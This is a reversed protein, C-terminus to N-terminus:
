RLSIGFDSWQQERARIFQEFQDKCKLDSAGLLKRWAVQIEDFFLKNERYGDWPRQSPDVRKYSLHFLFTNHHHGWSEDSWTPFSFTESPAYDLAIMDKSYKRENAFFDIFKRISVLFSQEVPGNWPPPVRPIRQSTLVLTGYDHVIHEVGQKLELDSPKWPTPM